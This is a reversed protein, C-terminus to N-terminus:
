CPCWAHRRKWAAPPFTSRATTSIANSSRATSTARRSRAPATRAPTTPSSSADASTSSPSCSATVSSRSRAARPSRARPASSSCRKPHPCPLSSHRSPARRPLSPAVGADTAVNVWQLGFALTSGRLPVGNRISSRLTLGAGPARPCLSRRHFGFLVFEQDAGPRPGGHSLQKAAIPEGDEERPLQRFRIARRHAHFAEALAHHGEAVRLPAEPEDIFKARVAAYRQPERAIFVAPK